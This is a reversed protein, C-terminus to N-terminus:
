KQTTSEKILPKLHHFSKTFLSMYGEVIDLSVDKFKDDYGNYPEIRYQGLKNIEGVIPRFLISTLSIFDENALTADLDILEGTTIEQFNPIFGYQVGGMVIINKFENVPEGLAKNINELLVTSEAEKLKRADKLDIGYFVKLIRMSLFNLDIDEANEPISRRFEVFDRYLVDSKSKYEKYEKKIAMDKIKFIIFEMEEQKLRM